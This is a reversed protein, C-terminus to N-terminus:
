DLTVRDNKFTFGEGKTRVPLNNQSDPYPRGGGMWDQWNMNQMYDQATPIYGGFDETCHQEAIDRTSVMTGDSNKIELGFVKEIVNRVFWSNHTLARHRNDSVAGKSSDMFEHIDLYDEVVGGFINASSRAHIIPKSM